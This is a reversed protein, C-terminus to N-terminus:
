RRQHSRNDDREKRKQERRVCRYAWVLSGRCSCCQLRLWFHTDITDFGSIGRHGVANIRICQHAISPFLVVLLSLNFHWGHCLHAEGRRVVDKLHPSLGDASRNRIFHQCREWVWVCQYVYVCWCPCQHCPSNCISLFFDPSLVLLPISQSM